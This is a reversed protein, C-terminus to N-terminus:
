NAAAAHVRAALEKLSPAKDIRVRFGLPERGDASVRQIKEVV